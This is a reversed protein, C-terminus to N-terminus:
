PPWGDLAGPHYGDCDADLPCGCPRRMVHDFVEVPMQYSRAAFQVLLSVRRWKKGAALAMGPESLDVMRDALDHYGTSCVSDCEGGHHADHWANYAVLAAWGTM